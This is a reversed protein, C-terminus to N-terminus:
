WREGSRRPSDLAASGDDADIDQSHGEGVVDDTRRPPPVANAAQSSGEDSEGFLRLMTGVEIGDVVAQGADAAVVTVELHEGSELVVDVRGAADTRLSAAPVLPGTTEPVAVIRARFDRPTGPPVLRVCEDECVAGGGRGLLTLVIEDSGVRAVSDIVAEWSGDPHEVRVSADPEVLDRQGETLTITFSPHTALAWAADSGPAVQRGIEISDDLLIRAPLEDVFVIDGRRVV